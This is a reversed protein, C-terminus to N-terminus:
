KNTNIDVKCESHIPVFIIWVVPFLSFRSLLVQRIKDYNFICHGLIFVSAWMDRLSMKHVDNSAFHRFYFFQIPIWCIFDVVLLFLFYFFICPYSGHWVLCNLTTWPLEILGQHNFIYIYKKIKATSLIPEIRQLIFMTLCRSRLNYWIKWIFM